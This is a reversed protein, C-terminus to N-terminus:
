RNMPQLSSIVRPDQINSYDLLKEWGTFRDKRYALYTDTTCIPVTPVNEALMVQMRYGIQRRDERNITNRVKNTLSNFETNNFNYYNKEQLPTVAFDVLDDPDDHLISPMADIFINGKDIAKRYQSEDDYKTTKVNIGLTVWDNRLATVIKEDVNGVSAKGGLVISLEIPNGEPDRLIGQNDKIFGAKSLMDQTKSLNYDYMGTEASNVYSGAVEPILFTTNTPHANGLINCITDRDIAHSMAHRFTSLNTPYQLMDFAMEYGTTAPITIIGIDSEKRLSEAVAPTLGTVVDIEGNKLALVQSDKNTILKLIAGTVEPKKGRYAENSALRVYGPESNDFKFPGTGIFQTDKWTKPDQIKEYIHKPYVGIGPSQALRDPWVSYANKLHFVATYDDPCTVLSVDSLVFGMTLNNEKLYDYTFKVDASTVPVGDHWIANHVLHFTWTKADDSANWSQALAPEYEGARNKTVLGEYIMGGGPVGNKKTMVNSSVLDSPSDVPIVVDTGIAQTINQTATQNQTKEDVCGSIACMAFILAISILIILDRRSRLVLEVIKM